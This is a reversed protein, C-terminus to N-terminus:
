KRNWSLCEVRLAACYENAAHQPFAAVRDQVSFTLLTVCHFISHMGTNIKRTETTRCASEIKTDCKEEKGEKRERDEGGFFM